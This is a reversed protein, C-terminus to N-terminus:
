TVEYPNLGCWLVLGLFAMDFGMNKGNIKRSWVQLSFYFTDLTLTAGKLLILQLTLRPPHTQSLCSAVVLSSVERQLARAAYPIPHFAIPRCLFSPRDPNGLLLSVPLLGHPDLFKKAAKVIRLIIAKPPPLFRMVYSVLSIIYINWILVREFLPASQPHYTVARAELKALAETFVNALPLSAAMLISLYKYHLVVEPDFDPLRPPPPRDLDLLLVVTKARNVQLSIAPFVDHLILLASLYTSSDKILITTNDAFLEVM